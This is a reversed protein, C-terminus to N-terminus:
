FHARGPARGGPGQTLSQVAGNMHVNTLNSQRPLTEVLLRNDIIVRSGPAPAEAVFYIFTYEGDGEAGVYRLALPEGGEVRMSFRPTAWAGLRALGERTKYLASDDLGHFGIAPHLDHSYLRHVVELEGTSPNLTVDTLGAHLRHGFASGAAVCLVTALVVIGTSIRFM